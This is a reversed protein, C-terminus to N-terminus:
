LGCQQCTVPDSYRTSIPHIIPTVSKLHSLFRFFYSPSLYSFVPLPLHFSRILRPHLNLVCQESVTHPIAPLNTDVVFIYHVVTREEKRLRHPCGGSYCCCRCCCFGKGHKLSDSEHHLNQGLCSYSSGPELM